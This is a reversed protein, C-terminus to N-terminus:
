QPTKDLDTYQPDVTGNQLVTVASYNSFADSTNYLLVSWSAGGVGDPNPTVRTRSQDFTETPRSSRIYDLAIKIAQEKRLYSSDDPDNASLLEVAFGDDIAGDLVGVFGANRGDPKLFFRYREGKQLAIHEPNNGMLQDPIWTTYRLEIEAPADGKFVHLVKIRARMRWEHIVPPGVGPYSYDKLEMQEVSLVAGNCILTAMPELEEPLYARVPRADALGSAFIGVTVCALGLGRQTM